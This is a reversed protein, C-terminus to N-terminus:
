RIVAVFLRNSMDSLWSSKFRHVGHLPYGSWCAVCKWHETWTHDLVMRIECPGFIAVEWVTVLLNSRTWQGRSSPSGVYDVARRSVSGRTRVWSREWLLWHLLPSFDLKKQCGVVLSVPGMDSADSWYTWYKSAPELVNTRLRCLRPIYGQLHRSAVYWERVMGVLNRWKGRLAM